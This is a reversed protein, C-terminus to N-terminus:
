HLYGDAPSSRPTAASTTRHRGAPLRTWGGASRPSRSTTSCSGRPSAPRRSSRGCGAMCATIAPRTSPAARHRVWMRHPVDHITLVPAPLQHLAARGPEPGAAVLGRGQPAGYGYHRVSLSLLVYDAGTAAACLDATIRATAAPWPSRRGRARIPIRHQLCPQCFRGSRDACILNLDSVGRQYRDATLDILMLRHPWGTPREPPM